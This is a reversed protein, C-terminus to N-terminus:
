TLKSRSPAKMEHFFERLGARRDVVLKCIPIVFACVVCWLLMYRICVQGFLQCPEASYDWVDLGLWLNVICGFIFEILTICLGGILSKILVSRNIKSIRIILWFCIGGAILMSIHTYGRWLIELVGYGAGGSCLQISWCAYKRAQESM